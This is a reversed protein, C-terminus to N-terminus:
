LGLGSSPRVRPPAPPIEEDGDRQAFHRLFQAVQSPGDLRWSAATGDEVATESVIIGIGGLETMIRFADEDTVDDGIYVPFVDVDEYEKRIQELLWAVAKGKDWDASPRLEYVMKGETRKLMPMESLVQEVVELVRERDDGEAVMRYHVSVSFTNDEVMAGNIGALAEEVQAKAQELAPRFSDAVQYSLSPVAPEEDYASDSDVSNVRRSKRLPGSIDFGHSGAYYLEDLQVLGQATARARGSVIAAPYRLALARVISRTEESIIADSPNNVIPTLTGDYDLFFALQKSHMQSEIEELHDLASAVLEANAVGGHMASANGEDGGYVSGMVSAEPPPLQTSIASLSALLSHVAQEHEVFHRAQSAAEGVRCTWINEPLYAAYPM